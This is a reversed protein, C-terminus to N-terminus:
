LNKAGRGEIVDLLERAFRELSARSAVFSRSGQQTELQLVYVSPENPNAVVKYGTLECPPASGTGCPVAGPAQASVPLAARDVGLALAAGATILLAPRLYRHTLM